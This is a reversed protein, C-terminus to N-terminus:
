RRYRGTALPANNTRAREAVILDDSVSEHTIGGYFLAPLGPFPNEEESFCEESEDYMILQTPLTRMQWIM